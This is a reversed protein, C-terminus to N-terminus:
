KLLYMSCLFSIKIHVKYVRRPIKGTSIDTIKISNDEHISLYLIAFGHHMGNCLIYVLTAAVTVVWGWGGDPFHEGFDIRTRPKQDAVCSIDKDKKIDSNNKSFTMDNENNDCDESNVQSSDPNTQISHIQNRSSCSGNDINQDVVARYYDTSPM